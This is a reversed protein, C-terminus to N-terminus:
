KLELNDFYLLDRQDDNWELDFYLIDKQDVNWELNFYLLHCTECHLLAIYCNELKIQCTDRHMKKKPIFILNM